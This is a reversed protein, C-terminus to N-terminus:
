AAAQSEMAGAPLLAPPAEGRLAAAHAAPLSALVHRPQPKLTAVVTLLSEVLRSGAESQTGVSIHRRQVGPRRAREAAHHTPEGGEGQGFTGRAERRKMSEQCPGATNSRGGQSGAEWLREVERRLPRMASRLPARKLPGERVRPWWTVMPHGQALLGAGMEESAGGRGHRAAFARRVQAWGGQRWRGPSGHYARDRDPVLLGACPAGLLARAVHGGRSLRRLCVTGGSTVAGWGGARKAGQRWSTEDGHAVAHEAVCACAAGVPAAGGATPAQASQTSPGVRRPGGVIDERGQGPTRKSLRSAGPCLAVTAHVRPGYPGRPVGAPWPARTPEGGPPCRLPHWPYATLVPPIPPMEIGHQRFPTPEDGLLPAPCRPGQEPKRTVVEDVDEVPMGTRTAGPHGPQAGRRRKGRPRKPRQSPPPDSSPPRSSHRSTQHLQAQLAHNQEQLAQVMGEWSSLRAELARIYAQAEPPPRGWMDAPLATPTAMAVLSARM